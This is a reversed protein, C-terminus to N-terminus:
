RNLQDQIFDLVKVPDPFGFVGKQQLEDLWDIGKSNVPIESKPLCIFAKIGMSLLREKLIKASSQGTGSADKDAFIIVAKVNKPPRFQELFPASIASWTPIRIGCYCALATEIGEAIGIIGHEPVKGMRIFLSNTDSYDSLPIMMKKANSVPAKNGNLLFIRHLSWLKGNSRIVSCLTDYYGQVKGEDYYPVHPAYYLDKFTDQPAYKLMGLGRKEFYDWVPKCRADKFSLPICTELQKHIAIGGKRYREQEEKKAQEEAIKAAQRAAEIVKQQQTKQSDSLNDFKTGKIHYGTRPCGLFEGVQELVDPFDKAAGTLQMLEFLDLTKNTAGWNNNFIMRGKENFDRFVRFGDKSGSRFPDPVHKGPRSIAKKLQPCFRMALDNYRGSAAAMVVEKTFSQM